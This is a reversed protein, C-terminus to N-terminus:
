YYLSLPGKGFVTKVMWSLTIGQGRHHIGVEPPCRTNTSTLGKGKRQPDWGGLRNKHNVCPQNGQTRSRSIAAKVLDVISTNQFLHDVVLGLASAESRPGKLAIQFSFSIRCSASGLQSLLYLIQRCHLLRPNLGQTPSIGQLFSHCGAGTNKRPFNWLPAQCAVTWLIAVLGVLSLSQVCVCVCVCM